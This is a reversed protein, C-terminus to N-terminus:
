ELDRALVAPDTLEYLVLGNVRGVEVCRGELVSNDEVASALEMDALICAKRGEAFAAPRLNMDSLWDYYVIPHRRRGLQVSVSKVKGDTLETIVPGYWYTAYCLDYGKETIMEAAPRLTEVTATDQYTLGSYDVDNSFNNPDRFFGTFYFGCGIMMVLVMLGALGHLSLPAAGSLLSAPLSKKEGEASPVMGSNKRLDAKAMAPIIWFLVPLYYLEMYFGGESLFLSVCTMVLQTMLMFISLFRAFRDRTHRLTHFAVILSLLFVFVALLSVIGNASFLGGRGIYGLDKLITRFLAELDNVTGLALSQSSYDMFSYRASLVKLNVLYGLVSAAVAALAWALAPAKEKLRNLRDEGAGNESFLASLFVSVLLPGTCIMLQRVGGLGGGFALLCLLVAKLPFAWKRESRNEKALSLYLGVTTLVVIIHPIYYNHYLVIRGYAVSFPLLMAAGGVCFREFPIKAQRSLFYFAGLMLLQMIVAGLFRVLSWDSFLRFLLSYVIQNYLVRLETSYFWTSSLIGGERALKEGLILESSADSDLLTSSVIWATRFSVVLALLLLAACLIRKVVPRIMTRNM